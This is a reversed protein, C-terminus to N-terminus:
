WKAASQSYAPSPASASSRAVYVVRNRNRNVVMYIIIAILAVGAIVAICIGVIAGTSLSNVAAEYSYYTVAPPAATPAATAGPLTSPSTCADSGASGAPVDRGNPCVTCVLTATDVYSGNTCAKLAAIVPAINPVGWGTVNSYGTGDVTGVRQATAKLLATIGDRTLYASASVSSKVLAVLAAVHPAAASTGYFPDFGPTAASIGDAGAFVPTKRTIGGTTLNGPTYPTTGDAQYFLRVPGDSSFVEPVLTNGFSAFSQGASPAEIAAVAYAGPATAHGHVAGTTGISFYCDYLGCSWLMLHLYRPQAGPNRYVLVKYDNSAWNLYDLGAGIVEVPDQTGTQYDESALVVHNNADLLYLDYDNASGGLPDSWWLLIGGPAYLGKIPLYQNYGSGWNHETATYNNFPGAWVTPYGSAAYNDNGASSVYVVKSSGNVTVTNVAETIVSYDHLPSESSWSLDDVIVECGAAALQIINDAMGTDSVQGTAFIITADPAMDYVIEMMATGEDTGDSEQNAIVYADHLDGSKQLSVITSAAASDSVVGVKIGSGTAGLASWVYSVNHATVGESTNIKNTVPALGAKIFVVAPDAALEDLTGALLRARLSKHRPSAYVVEGGLARVHALLADTVETVHIDVLIGITMATSSSGVSRALVDGPRQARVQRTLAHKNSSSSSGADFESSPPPAAAAAFAARRMIHATADGDWAAHGLADLLHLSSAIKRSTEPKAEAAAAVASRWAAVVEDSVLQEERVASRRAAGEATMAVAAVAAVAILVRWALGVRRAMIHAAGSLPRNLANLANLVNLADLVNLANLM